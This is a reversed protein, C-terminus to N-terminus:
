APGGVPLRCSATGVLVPEGRQNDCRVDLLFTRSNGEERIERLTAKPQVTDDLMLSRPIKMEVTGASFWVEGFLEILLDVLHGEFQTGSVIIGALGAEHAKDLDTHLNRDPWQPQAFPGGSFALVRELTLRRVPGLFEAGVSANMIANM